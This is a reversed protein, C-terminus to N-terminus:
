NETVGGDRQALSSEGIWRNQSGAEKTDRMQRATWSDLQIHSKAAIDEVTDTLECHVKDKTM